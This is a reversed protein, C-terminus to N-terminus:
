NKDLAPERTPTAPRAQRHVKTGIIQITDPCQSVYTRLNIGYRHILAQEMNLEIVKHNSLDDDGYECWGIEFITLANNDIHM